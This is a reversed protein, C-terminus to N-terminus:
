DKVYMCTINLLINHHLTIHIYLAVPRALQAAAPPPPPPLLLPLAGDLTPKNPPGGVTSLGPPKVVIALHADAFLVRCKDLTDRPYLQRAHDSPTMRLELCDGACVRDSFRAVRGNLLLHENECAAEVKSRSPLLPSLIKPGCTVLKVGEYEHPVVWKKSSVYGENNHM